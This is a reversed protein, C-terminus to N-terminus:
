KKPAQMREAQHKEFEQPSIKGNKDTDIDAFTPANAVNKMMRGEKAHQAMLSTHAESLESETIQGDNNLDFENFTHMNMMSYRNPTNMIGKGTGMMMSKNTGKCMNQMHMTQHKEFEEPSIKGDKNLDIDTFSPANAANKMMRGEKARQAMRKARGDQLEKETIYGDGNTDFEGFTPMQMMSKGGMGMMGCRTNSGCMSKMYKMHMEQHKTFEDPSIMGNKNTDVDAFTPMKMCNNGMAMAACTFVAIMTVKKM